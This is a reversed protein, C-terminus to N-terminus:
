QTRGQQSTVRFSNRIASSFSSSWTRLTFHFSHRVAVAHLINKVIIYCTYMM